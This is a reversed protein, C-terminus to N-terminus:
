QATSRSGRPSAGIRVGDPMPRAACLFGQEFLRAKMERFEAFSDPYTWATVVTEAANRSALELSLRGSTDFAAPLTEQLVDPTAELEFRDLEFGGPVQLMRYRMLFGGIPGFTEELVNRSSQRRAALPVHERLSDVLREWPIVTVKGGKLQVHLERTFVTKAMPTPLHELIIQPRETEEAAGLEANLEVLKAQLEELEKSGSVSAQKEEDLGAVKEDIAQRALQVEALLADREARRYAAELDYERQAVAQKQM